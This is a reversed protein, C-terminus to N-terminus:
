LKKSSAAAIFNFVSDQMFLFKRESIKFLVLKDRHEHSHLYRSLTQKSVGLVMCVERSTMLDM